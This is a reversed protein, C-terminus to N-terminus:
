PEGDALAMVADILEQQSHVDAKQYINRVHTHVTNRSLTLSDAVWAISRGRALGPLVARERPTLGWAEAAIDALREVGQEGAAVADRAIEAQSAPVDPSSPQALEGAPRQPALLRPALELCLVAGLVVAAAIMYLDGSGLQPLLDGGFWMGAYTGGFFCGLAASLRVLAADRGGPSEDEAEGVAAPAMWLLGYFLGQSLAMLLPVLLAVAGSMLPTLFIAVLYAPLLVCRLALPGSGRADLRRTGELLVLAGLLLGADNILCDRVLSRALADAGGLAFVGVSFAQSSALGGTVGYLAFTVLLLGVSGLAARGANWGCASADPCAAGGDDAGRAGASSEAEPCAPGPVGQGALESGGSTRSLRGLLLWLAFPLALGAIAVGAPALLLFAADLCAAIAIGLAMQAACALPRAPGAVACLAVLGLMSAVRALVGAASLASTPLAHPALGAVALLAASILALGCVLVRGARGGMARRLVCPGVALLACPVLCCLLMAVNDGPMPFRGVGDLSLEMYSRAVGGLVLLVAIACAGLRARGDELTVRVAEGLGRAM